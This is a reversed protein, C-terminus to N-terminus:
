KELTFTYQKKVTKDPNMWYPHYSGKRMELLDLISLRPIPHDYDNFTWWGRTQLIIDWDYGLNKLDDYLEKPSCFLDRYRRQFKEMQLLESTINIARQLKPDNDIKSRVTTRSLSVDPYIDLSYSRNSGTMGYYNAKKIHHFETLTPLIGETQSVIINLSYGSQGAKSRLQVVEIMNLDKDGAYTESESIPYEQGKTGDNSLVTASKCHWCNNMLFFFKGTVGKAKENQKMHQLKKTPPGSMPGNQMQVFDDMHAALLLFHNIAGYLAPVEMLFRTKALGIRMHIPNGGSEGIENDDQMKLVDDTTWESFSDVENFTPIVVEMPTKGDRDYFPCTVQLKNKSKTKLNLFDKVGEFWKNGSYITKDTINWIEEHFLDYKNLYPFRELFRKLASEHINMETDYTSASTESTSFIRNMVTLMMFHMFTSKFTNGRGLIGTIAGLGGILINEGKAGKIFFGTPVDLLCGINMLLKVPAPREMEQRLEKLKLM